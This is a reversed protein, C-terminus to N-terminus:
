LNANRIKVRKSMARRRFHDPPSPSWSWTGLQNTYTETNTIRYDENTTKVVMTIEVTDIKKLDATVAEAEDLYIFNLASVNTIIEDGSGDLTTNEDNRYLGFIGDGDPDLRRYHIWEGVDNCKGNGIRIEDEEDTLGDDDNDITDAAFVGGSGLDMVLKVSTNTAITFAGEKKGTASVFCDKADEETMGARRIDKELWYMGIRLNQQMEIIQEQADASQSFATYGRYIAIAAVASLFVVIMLEVLTFGRRNNMASKSNM